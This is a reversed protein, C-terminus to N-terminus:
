DIFRCLSMRQEGHVMAERKEGSGHNRPTKYLGCVEGHMAHLNRGSHNHNICLNSNIFCRFSQVIHIGISSSSVKSFEPRQEHAVYHWACGRKLM